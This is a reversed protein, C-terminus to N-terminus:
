PLKIYKKDEKYIQPFDLSLPSILPSVDGSVEIKLTGNKRLNRGIVARRNKM